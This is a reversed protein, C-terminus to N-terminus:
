GEHKGAVKFNVYLNMLYNWVGAVGAVVLRAAFVGLSTQEVLLYMGGTVVVLGVSAILIFNAYGARASRLSHKFVFKRAILYNVSVSILFAVGAALVYQVGWVDTFLYLLALDLSLTGVGVTAYKLLRTLAPSFMAQIM